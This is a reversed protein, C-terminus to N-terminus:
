LLSFRIRFCFHARSAFSTSGADLGKGEAPYVLLPLTTAPAGRADVLGPPSDFCNQSDFVVGPVQWGGTVLGSAERLHCCHERGVIEREIGSIRWGDPEGM